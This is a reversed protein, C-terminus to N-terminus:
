FGWQALRERRAQRGPLDQQDLLEPREWRAWRGPFEQQAKRGQQDWHALLGLRAM